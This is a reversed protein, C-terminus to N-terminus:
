SRQPFLFITLILARARSYRWLFGYTHSFPTLNSTERSYTFIYGNRVIVESHTSTARHLAYISVNAVTELDTSYYIRVYRVWGWKPLLPTEKYGNGM